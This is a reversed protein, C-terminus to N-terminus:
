LPFSSSPEDLDLYRVRALAASLAAAASVVDAESTYRTFALRISSRAEAWSLGMARLVRSPEIQGSSCASGTSASFTRACLALVNEADIGDFRISLSGPLRQERSGNIVPEAGGRRLELLFREVLNELHAKSHDRQKLVLQAAMGFGVVLPTPITGPRLGGEQTGGFMLPRPQMPACASVYLAGVGMPGHLKHASLSALDLEAGLVSFPLRGAIQSLDSHTMAGVGHALRAAEAVPQLVGVENSAALISVLLTAPSLLSHLAQLDLRGQRDVPCAQIAWGRRELEAACAEVSRHEIASIVIGRRPDGGAEAAAALGLLALANSETAGSTFVVEQPAADILDAVQQRARAVARAAAEGRLHSSSPNASEVRWFPAMAAEAEPALSTPAHADLDVPLGRSLNASSDFRM